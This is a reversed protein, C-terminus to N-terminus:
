SRLRCRARSKMAGSCCRLVADQLCLLPKRRSRPRPAAACTAGDAIALLFQAPEERCVEAEAYAEAEEEEEEEVGAWAEAEAEAEAGAGAEAERHAGADAEDECIRVVDGCEEEEQRALNELIRMLPVFLDLLDRMADARAKSQDLVKDPHSQLLHRRYYPRVAAKSVSVNPPLAGKAVLAKVLEAAKSELLGAAEVVGDPYEFSRHGRACHM